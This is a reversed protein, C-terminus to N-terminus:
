KLLEFKGAKVTYLFIFPQKLEGNAQFAVHGVLSDFDSKAIAPVITERTPKASAAKMGNIVVQAEMYGYASYPGPDEKFVVKYAKAFEQLQPSSDYPPAQFSV